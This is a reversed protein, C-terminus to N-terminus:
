PIRPFEKLKSKLGCTCGDMGCKKRHDALLKKRRQIIANRNGAPTVIETKDHNGM